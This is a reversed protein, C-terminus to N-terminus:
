GIQWPIPKKTCRWAPFGDDCFLNEPHTELVALCVRFENQLAMHTPNIWTLKRGKLASGNIPRNGPNFGRASDGYGRRPMFGAWLASIKAVNGGPDTFYTLVPAGLPMPAAM